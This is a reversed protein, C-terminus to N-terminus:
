LPVEDVFTASGFDHMDDIDHGSDPSAMVEHSGHSAIPKKKISWRVKGGTNGLSKCEVDMQRLAPAARRLADGLGKPSRPWADAGVPKFDELRSLIDKASAEIGSPNKDVYELVASAVPSADLVRAISERRSATFQRMFEQPEHGMAQAVAMGLMAFEALRPRDKPSLRIRPLIELAKAAVDMLAGLLMAHNKEFTANLGTATGREEIVPCDITVARDLLDQQTVAASIGNIIWPRQVSIISEEDNSYLTRKAIGGGTSLICLADQMTGHLHSINEFTVLHSHGAVVFIDEVSRPAGRLDCANPDILRRIFKATLSKGSGQEGLLELGAYPGDTRYADVIFAVVLLRADEPVNLLEWLMGLTGGAVPHPLPQMAEGRVFVVPPKAVVRWGAASLHIAQSNNPQCLDIYYGSDHHATRLFVKEPEGSNVGLATLTDLAESFSAAKIGKGRAEFFAAYIDDRFARSTVRCVIGSSMSRAYVNKQDDHLLEYRAQAFKVVQDAQSEREKEPADDDGQVEPAKPAESILQALAEVTGGADLWDSIDGKEPLCPLEVISVEAIGRLSKAVKQAHKRGADDNDPLIVVRRGKLFQAHEDTWKGAGAANCTAVVGLKTLRDVDKEGEVVFVPASPRSQMFPLNYPVVRVGKVTWSWGDGDPRRQRFTKPEMRVVQFLVTGDEARYDYTAVIKSATKLKPAAKTPAAKPEAMVQMVEM